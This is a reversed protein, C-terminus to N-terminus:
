EYVYRQKVESEADERLRVASVEEMLALADLYVLNVAADYSLAKDLGMKEAILAHAKTVDGDCVDTIFVIKAQLDELVVEPKQLVLSRRCLWVTGVLAVGYYILMGILLCGGEYLKARSCAKLARRAFL